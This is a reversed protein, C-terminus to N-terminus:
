HAYPTLEEYVFNDYLVEVGHGFLTLGVPGSDAPQSELVLPTRGNVKIVMMSKGKESGTVEVEIHNMGRGPAVAGTWKGSVLEWGRTLFDFKWVAVTQWPTVELTMFYKDTSRLLIGFGRESVGEVFAADVTVRYNYADGCENCLVMQQVYAQSAPFPGVHLTGQLRSCYACNSWFGSSGEFNDSVILPGPTATPLPTPTPTSTNTPTPRPTDTAAATPTVASMTEFVMTAALDEPSPGAPACATLLSLVIAIFGAARVNRMPM